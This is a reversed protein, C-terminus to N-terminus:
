LDQIAEWSEESRNGLYIETTTITSHGLWDRLMLLARTPPIKKASLADLARLAFTHRLAHPHCLEQPIGAAVCAQHVIRWIDKNFLQRGTKSVFVFDGKLRSACVSWRYELIHHRLESCVPIDRYRDGKGEIRNIWEPTLQSLKLNRAEDNRLGSFLLLNVLFREHAPLSLSVAILNGVQTKDLGRFERPTTGRVRLGQTDINPLSYRKATWSLFSRVCRLRLLASGASEQQLRENYFNQIMQRDIESFSINDIFELFYNLSTSYAKRTNETICHGSLFREVFVAVPLLEVANSITFYKELKVRPKVDKEKGCM